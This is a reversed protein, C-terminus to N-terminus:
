ENNMSNLYEIMVPYANEWGTDFTLMDHGAGKVEFLQVNPYASSVRQAWEPGYARNNESYMFLIKTSYQHLNTTLDPEEEEGKEFLSQNCIAGNRWFPIPAENGTPNDKDSETFALLGYKYDLIEQQTERGTIFQDMYTIDNMLESMIEAERSRHVYDAVDQWVLGGPEGLILGSIAEPYENVYATALMAGWSHGLLFIKQSPSTRYHDIIGGLEDIMVQISYSSKPFRQSLGSGRQDYFVVRYGQNAFEKCKLLSRYDSGPGGHLVVILASDAPGFAESHLRAGNVTISPLGPDQDVTKPVLNGEDKMYVEKECGMFPITSIIVAAMMVLKRNLKKM